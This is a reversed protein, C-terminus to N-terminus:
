KSKRKPNGSEKLVKSIYYKSLGYKEAMETLKMTASDVILNKLVDDTVKKPRGGIPTIICNHYNELYNDLKQINEYSVLTVEMKYNAYEETIIGESVLELLLKVRGEFLGDEYNKKYEM